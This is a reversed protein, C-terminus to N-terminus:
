LEIGPIHPSPPSASANRNRTIRAAIDAVGIASVSAATIRCPTGFRKGFSCAEDRHLGTGLPHRRQELPDALDVLLLRLREGVVRALHELAVHPDGREVLVVEVLERSSMPTSWMSM